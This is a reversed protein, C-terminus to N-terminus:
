AAGSAKSLFSDYSGALQGLSEFHPFAGTGFIDFTWNTRGQVRSVHHYDVFDGRTGRVMWVPNKLTQYVNLIDRSFLYGSVFYYPAHEAGPQHTTQYDYELLREDINKSGWTKRLFKRIVRRKTLLKFLSARWLPCNLTMHLWKQGRTGGEDDRAKGEFGTPSIFGLTWILEPREAAARALFECSLSLGITDASAHHRRRIEELAARVADTMLRVSYSRDSRDSKGFGPLDIAYVPRLSRYYDFLPRVEFASAAANVSHVLLLPRKDSSGGAGSDSYVALRRADSALADRPASLPDCLYKACGEAFPDQRKFVFM